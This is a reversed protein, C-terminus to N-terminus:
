KGVAILKPARMLFRQVIEIIVVDPALERLEDVDILTTWRYVASEFSDAMYPVLANGYSDRLVYARRIPAGPRSSRVIAEYGMDSELPSHAHWPLGGEGTMTAATAAVVPVVEDDSLWAKLGLFRALDGGHSVESVVATPAAPPVVVTPFWRALSRMLERNAIYAGLANWHTDTRYYLPFGAGRAEALASRADVFLLDSRGGLLTALQDLRSPGAVPTAWSPMLDPYVTQKDPPIMIVLRAGASACTKAWGDALERWEDLEAPSLPQVRRFSDLNHEGAYFLWDDEGVTVNPSTSLGLRLKILAGAEILQARFGFRTRFWGSLARAKKFPTHAKDLLEQLSPYAEGSVSKTAHTPPDVLMAVGPLVLMALFAGVILLNLTRSWM